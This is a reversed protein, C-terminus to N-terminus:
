LVEMRHRPFNKGITSHELLQKRGRDRELCLPCPLDALIESEEVEGSVSFSEDESGAILRDSDDLESWLEEASAENTLFLDASLEEALSWLEANSFGQLASASRSPHWSRAGSWITAVVLMLAVAAPIWRGDFNPLRQSVIASPPEAHLTQSIAKLDSELQRYKAACDQCSALHGRQADNGERNFLLLLERERLCRRYRSM